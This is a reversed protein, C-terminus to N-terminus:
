HSCQDLNVTQAKPKPYFGARVRQMERDIRQKLGTIKPGDNVPVGGNLDLQAGLKDIQDKLVRESPNSRLCYIVQEMITYAMQLGVLDDFLHAKRVIANTHDRFTTIELNIGNTDYGWSRNNRDFNTDEGIQAATVPKAWFCRQPNWCDYQERIARAGGIENQFYGLYFRSGKTSQSIYNLVLDSFNVVTAENGEVEVDQTWIHTKKGDKFLYLPILADRDFLLTASEIQVAISDDKPTNIEYGVFLGTNYIEVDNYGSRNYMLTREIQEPVNLTGNLCRMIVSRKLSELYANFNTNSIGADEMTDKLNKIRVLAHFDDFYRGSASAINGAEVIAYDSITPQRFGIRGLMANMVRAYNFGNTYSGPVISELVSTLHVFYTEDEGFLYNNLQFGGNSLPTYDSYKLPGYGASTVYFEKGKLASNLYQSAGIAPDNIGGGGVVIEIPKSM